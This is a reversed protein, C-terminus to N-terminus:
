VKTPSKLRGSLVLSGILALALYAIAVVTVSSAGFEPVGTATTTETVEGTGAGDSVLTLTECIVLNASVTQCTDTLTASGSSGESILSGAVISAFSFCPGTDSCWNNPDTEANNDSLFNLVVTSQGPTGPTPIISVALLDSIQSPVTPTACRLDITECLTAVAPQPTTITLESLTATSATGELVDDICTVTVTTVGSSIAANAFCGAAAHVPSAFAFIGFIALAGVTLLSIARM